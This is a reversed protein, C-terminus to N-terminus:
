LSKVHVIFEKVSLRAAYISVALVFQGVISAIFFLIGGGTTIGSKVAWPIISLFTFALAYFLSVWVHVKLRWYDDWLTLIRVTEKDDQLLLRCENIVWAAIAAPLLMLYKIVEQNVDLSAAFTNLEIPFQVWILWAIALLLTEFSIFVVRLAYILKM